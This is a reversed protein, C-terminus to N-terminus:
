PRPFHGANLVPVAGEARCVVIVDDLEYLPADPDGGSLYPVRSVILPALGLPLLANRVLESAAAEFQKSQIPLRERPPRSRGGDYVFPDYPLVLAIILLGNEALLSRASALLSLPRDCRDLVNLLSAADFRPLEPSLEALDGHVTRFGRRRLRRIMSRSTETATTERFLTALETTVDGRGAGIDLLRGLSPQGSPGQPSVGAAGLLSRWQERSLVHMPYLGLLGNIDFDSLVGQLARHLWSLFRGHRKKLAHEVYRAGGEDFSLKHFRLDDALKAHDVSYELRLASLAEQVRPSLHPTETKGEM